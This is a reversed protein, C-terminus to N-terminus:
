RYMFIVDDPTSWLWGSHVFIMFHSIAAIMKDIMLILFELHHYSLQDLMVKEFSTTGNVIFFAGSVAFVQHHVTLYCYCSIVVNLLVCLSGNGIGEVLIIMLNKTCLGDVILEQGALNPVFCMVRIVVCDFYDDFRNNVFEGCDDGAM